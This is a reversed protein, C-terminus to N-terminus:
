RIKLSHAKLQKVKLETAQKQQLQGLVASLLASQIKIVGEAVPQIAPAVLQM